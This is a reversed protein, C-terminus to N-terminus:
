SEHNSDNSWWRDSNLFTHKIFSSLQIEGDNIYCAFHINDEFTICFNVMFPEDVILIPGVQFPCESTRFHNFSTLILTGSVLIGCKLKIIYISCRFDAYVLKM